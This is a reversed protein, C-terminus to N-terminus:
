ARKKNRPLFVISGGVGILFGLPCAFVALLFFVPEEIGLLGSVLNHLIVFVFFGV